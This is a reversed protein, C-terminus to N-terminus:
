WPCRLGEHEHGIGDRRFDSITMVIFVLVNPERFDDLLFVARFRLNTFNRICPIVVRTSATNIYLTAKLQPLVVLGAARGVHLCDVVCTGWELTPTM